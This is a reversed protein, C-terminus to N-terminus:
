EIIEIDPYDEKIMNFLKMIRKKHYVKSLYMLTISDKNKIYVDGIGGVYILFKVESCNIKRINGFLKNYIIGKEKDYGIEFSLIGILLFIFLIFILISSLYKPNDILHIFIYSISKVEMLNEYFMYIPAFLCLSLAIILKSLKLRVKGGRWKLYATLLNELQM